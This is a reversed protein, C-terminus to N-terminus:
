RKVKRKIQSYDLHIHISVYRFYKLTHDMNFACNEAAFVVESVKSFTFGGTISM